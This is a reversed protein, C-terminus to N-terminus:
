KASLLAEKFCLEAERFAAVVQKDTVAENENEDDDNTFRKMM